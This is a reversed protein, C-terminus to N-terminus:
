LVWIPDGEEEGDEGQAMMAALRDRLHFSSSSDKQSEEDVELSQMM